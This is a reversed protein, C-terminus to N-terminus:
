KDEVANREKRRGIENGRELYPLRSLKIVGM